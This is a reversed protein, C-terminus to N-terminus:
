KVWIQRHYTAESGIKGSGFMAYESVNASIVYVSFICKVDFVFAGTLASKHIRSMGIKAFWM